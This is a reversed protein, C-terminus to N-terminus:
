EIESKKKYIYYTNYLKKKNILIKLIFYFFFNKIKSAQELKKKMEYKYAYMCITLIISVCV